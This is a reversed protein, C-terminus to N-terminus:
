FFRGFQFHTKWGSKEGFNYPSDFGYGLDIGLLGVAPVQVRVGVGLSRKLGFPDAHSWDKWVNGAEAFALIFLPIPERSIQFRLEAVYRMYAAGGESFNGSPSRQVGVSADDYGRLSLTRLGSSLGAGGMVFKESPTVFPNPGLGGIQGVDIGTVLVLKQASGFQALPSFFKMTLTNLYYNAPENPPTSTIPLYAIRGQYTFESGVSPFLPDDTSNRSLRVEFSTEDHKGPTYVGGGTKINTSEARITGDIRFFDDPWKLRRGLSVSAGLRDVAYYYNSTTSYVSVGFLTPEQFLWPEQFSLSLTRYQSQGFEASIGFIQGAGGHLPDAIDFNNFSVGISGLLGQTGGYGISANFTDSSKEELSYTVDVQSADPVFNVKPELKEANFYNLQSLERLSRIIGSRSFADGPRTYLSRRIVYDKTKTNGAIEINRFYNRKGELVRITLDISDAGVISEEKGVNVLYGRDYYLSSVDNFEPTPGKLNAELLESNYVDGKRLGVGRLIEAETFVENGTVGINRIFYQNGEYVNILISLDEGNTVWISDSIITADRFGKTHYYGIIKKKDDDYKKQDFKGSSFIKWWKKEATESMAGRLDGATMKINGSFNIHRVVVETGETITYILRVKGTGDTTPETATEVKAYQYGEKAYLVKIKRAGNDADWPRVFDNKYFTIVKNIEAQTLNSNGRIIVSDLRSLEKVHIVLYIGDTGDTQPSIKSVEIDVDSFINQSWIRSMAKRIADSPLSIKDGKRVGSQAIITEASGSQNGEVTIGLVTYEKESQARLSSAFVLIFALLVSTCFYKRM